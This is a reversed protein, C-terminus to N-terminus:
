RPLSEACRKFIDDIESPTISKNITMNFGIYHEWRVEFDGCKFNPPPSETRKTSLPLLAPRHMLFVNNSFEQGYGHEGGLGGHHTHARLKIALMKSLEYLKKELLQPMPGEITLLQTTDESQGKAIDSKVDPIKPKKENWEIM